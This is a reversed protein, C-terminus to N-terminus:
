ILVDAFPIYAIDYLIGVINVVIILTNVCAHNNEAISGDAVVDIAYSGNSETVKTNNGDVLNIASAASVDIPAVTAIISCIM